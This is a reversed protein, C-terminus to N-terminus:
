WNLSEENSDEEDADLDSLREIEDSYTSYDGYLGSYESKKMIHIADPEIYVGIVAEPAVYDTSQIMWKFGKIDVIIEYHV